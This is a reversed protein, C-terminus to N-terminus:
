ETENTLKYIIFAGLEDQLRAAEKASLALTGTLHGWGRIDIYKVKEGAKNTYFIEGEELYELEGTTIVAPEFEDNLCTIIRCQNVLSVTDPNFDFIRIDESDWASGCEDNALPFKWIDRFSKIKKAM